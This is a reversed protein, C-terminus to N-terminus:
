TKVKSVSINNKLCMSSLEELFSRLYLEINDQMESVKKRLGRKQKLFIEVYLIKNKFEDNFTQTVCFDFIMTNEDFVDNGKLKSLAVKKMKALKEHIIKVFSNAQTLSSLYTKCNIFVVEPNNRNVVGFEIDFNDLSRM